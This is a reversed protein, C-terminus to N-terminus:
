KHYIKYGGVEESKYTYFLAPYMERIKPFLDSRDLIYAPMNKQFEEFIAADSEISSVMLHTSAYPLPHFKQYVIRYDAYKTACPRNLALYVEPKHEMLWIGHKAYKGVFYKQLAKNPFIPEGENYIAKTNYNVWFSIYTIMTPAFSLFLVPAYVWKRFPIDFARTAYFALPPAILMWEHLESRSTSLFLAILGAALWIAMGAELRRIRVLSTFYKIRFYFFGLGALVVFLAEVTLFGFFSQQLGKFPENFIEYKLLDFGYLIGMDFFGGLSDTYYLVICVIVLSVFSGGLLATMEDIAPRRIFLYLFIVSLFFILSTFSIMMCLMILIGTLFFPQYSVLNRESTQIISQYAILLPFLTLTEVNLELSYWPSSSLLIIIFAPLLPYKEFPRYESLWSNFYVAFVYIYFIAFIRLAILWFKGFLFHFISYFWIILPPGSFWAQSYLAKGEVLKQACVGFLAEDTQFYDPVFAPLRLVIAMIILLLHLPIPIHSFINRMTKPLIAAFNPSQPSIVM